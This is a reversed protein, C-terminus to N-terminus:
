TPGTSEDKYYNGILQFGQTDLQDTTRDFTSAGQDTNFYNNWIIGRGTQANTNIGKSDAGLVRNGHFDLDPGPGGGTITGFVMAYDCDTFRCDAIELNATAGQMYIGGEFDSGVGEFGCRDVLCDSSGEIALGYRNDLAWKPFRCSELWVGFPAATALGGILCAAGSFFTAGTDRSAFGMGRIHCPATITAAPGDTFSADSLIPNFEGRALPALGDDVAFVSIGSKNFNITSTVTHGGREVFIHDGNGAVSADIAAQLEGTISPDVVFVQANPNLSIGARRLAGAIVSM